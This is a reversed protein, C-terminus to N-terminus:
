SNRKRMKLRRLSMEQLVLQKALRREADERALVEKVMTLSTEPNRSVLEIIRQLQHAMWLITEEEFLDRRYQLTGLLRRGAYTFVLNLEFPCAEQKFSFDTVTLEAFSTGIEPDYDVFNFAMQLFPTHSFKRQPTLEEIILEFPVDQHGHGELVTGRINSLLEHFTPNGAVSTRFLLTNVFCGMLAEIEVWNRYSIPASVLIDESGSHYHLLIKFAALLTAFLTCNAAHSLARLASTQECSLEFMHQSGRFTQSLPRPHDSPFELLYPAGALQRRWYSLQAELSEGQLRQRQWVAFDQYQIALEGLPSGAGELFAKYLISVERVLVKLSWWDSIIHHFVCIMVHEQEKLRLVRFRLLPGRALDFTRYAEERVLRRTERRRRELPLASLDVLPLEAGSSPQVIQVPGGDQETFVTRLINHRRVVEDLARKLVAVELSGALHLADSINYFPSGGELQDVFWLRQQSFSLPFCATGSAAPVIRDPPRVTRRGLRLELLTRQRPSLQAIQEPLMM